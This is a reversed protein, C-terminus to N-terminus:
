KGEVRVVCCLIGVKGLVIKIGLNIKELFGVWEELKLYWEYILLKMVVIVSKGVELVM